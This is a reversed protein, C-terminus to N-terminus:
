AGSRSRRAAKRRQARHMAFIVPAFQTSLTDICRQHALVAHVDCWEGSLFQDTDDAKAPAIVFTQVPTGDALPKRCACPKQGLSQDNPLAPYIPGQRPDGLKWRTSVMVFKNDGSDARPPLQGLDATPEAPVATQPDLEIFTKNLVQLPVVEDLDFRKAADDLDMALSAWAHGRRPHIIHFLAGRRTVGVMYLVEYAGPVDALRRGDAPPNDHCWAEALLAVALYDHGSDQLHARIEDNIKLEQAIEMLMDSANDHGEPEPITAIEGRHEPDLDKRTLRVVHARNDVWSCSSHSHEVMGLATLAISRLDSDPLAEVDARALNDLPHGGLPKIHLTRSYPTDSQGDTHTARPGTHVTYANAFHPLARALADRVRDPSPTVSDSDTTPLLEFEITPQERTRRAVTFGVGDPTLGKVFRAPVSGPVDDSERSDESPLDAPYTWGHYFLTLAIVTAAAQDLKGAVLARLSDPNEDACNSIYNLLATPHRYEEDAVTMPCVYPNNDRGEIRLLQVLAPNQTDYGAPGAAAEFGISALVVRRLTSDPLAVIDAVTVVRGVLGAAVARNDSTPSPEQAAASPTTDNPSDSAHTTM